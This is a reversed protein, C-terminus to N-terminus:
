WLEISNVIVGDFGVICESTKKLAKEYKHILGESVVRGNDYIGNLQIMMEDYIDLIQSKYVNQRQSSIMMNLCRVAMGYGMADDFSDPYSEIVMNRDKISCSRSNYNFSGSLVDQVVAENLQKLKLNFLSENLLAEEVCSYINHITILQSFDEFYRGSDSKRNEDNVIGNLKDSESNRWGIRNFLAQINEASYM